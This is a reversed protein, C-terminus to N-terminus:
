RKSLSTVITAVKNTSIIQTRNQTVANHGPRNPITVRYQVGIRSNITLAHIHYASVM